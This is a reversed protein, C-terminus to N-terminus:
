RPRFLSGIREKLKRMALTRIVANSPKLGEMAEPVSAKAHEIMLTIRSELDDGAKLGDEAADLVTIAATELAKHLDRQWKDEVEIRTKQEFYRVGADVAAKTARPIAAKIQYLITLAVLFVIETVNPEITAWFNQM